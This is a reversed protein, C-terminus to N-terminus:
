NVKTSLFLLTGRPVSKNKLIMINEFVTQNGLLNYNQFIYGFYNNRIDDMQGAKYKEIVQNDIIIQGDDVKDIGCLSNLLTTKGSGSHGLISVLGKEGLEFTSDNIVHIENSKNKNYYKNLNKIKLM